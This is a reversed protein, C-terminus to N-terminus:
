ESSYLTEATITKQDHYYAEELAMTAINVLPRRNGRISVAIIDIADNEFLNTPTAAKNM